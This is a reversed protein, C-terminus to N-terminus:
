SSSTSFLSWRRRRLVNQPSCKLEKVGRSNGNVERSQVLRLIEEAETGVRGRSFISLKTYHKKSADEESIGGNRITSKAETM